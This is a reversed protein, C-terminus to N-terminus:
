KNGPVYRLQEELQFVRDHLVTVKQYIAFLICFLVLAIGASAAPPPLLVPAVIVCFAGAWFEPTKM